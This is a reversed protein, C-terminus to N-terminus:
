GQAVQWHVACPSPDSMSAANFQVVSHVHYTVRRDRCLDIDLPALLAMPRHGSVRLAHASRPGWPQVTCGKQCPVEGLGEGM